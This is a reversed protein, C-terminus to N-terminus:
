EDRVRQAATRAAKGIAEAAEAGLVERSPAV